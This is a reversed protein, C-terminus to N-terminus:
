TMMLVHHVRVTITPRTVTIEVHGSSKSMAIQLDLYSQFQSQLPDEEGALQTQIESDQWATPDVTIKPHYIVEGLSIM